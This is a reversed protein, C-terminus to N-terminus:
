EFRLLQNHEETNRYNGEIDLYAVARRLADVEPGTKEEMFCTKIAAAYLQNPRVNIAVLRDYDPLIKRLVKNEAPTM